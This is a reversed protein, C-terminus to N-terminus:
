MAIFLDSCTRVIPRSEPSAGLHKRLVSAFNEMARESREGPTMKSNGTRNNAARKEESSPKTIHRAFLSRFHENITGVSRRNDEPLRRGILEYFEKESMAGAKALKVIRDVYWSKSHEDLTDRVIQDELDRLVHGLKAALGSPMAEFTAYTGMGMDFNRDLTGGEPNMGLQHLMRYLVMTAMRIDQSPGSTISLVSKSELPNPSLFIREFARSGLIMNLRALLDSATEGLGNPKVYGGAGTGNPVVVVTEFRAGTQVGTFAHGFEHAATLMRDESVRGQVEIRPFKLAIERDELQLPQEEPSNTLQIRYRVRQKAESYDLTLTLPEKAYKSSRPLRALAYELDTSIMANATKTTNRAGESPIVSENFLYRRYAPTTKMEIQGVNRGNEDLLREDEVKAAQTEIIKSYAPKDLPKMILMQTMLRSVTDPLFMSGLLKKIAAPTAKLRRWAKIVDEITTMRPDAEFGFRDIAFNMTVGIFAGRLDIAESSYQSSIDFRGDNLLDKLKALVPRNEFEGKPSIEFVKDLEEFLLIFQGTKNDELANAVAREVDTAFAKVAEASDTAYSQMNVRAVPLGTLEAARLFLESKGIGPFGALARMSPEKRAPGRRGFYNELDTAIVNIADAQGYLYEALGERLGKVRDQNKPFRTEFTEKKTVPKLEDTEEQKKLFAPKVAAVDQPPLFVRSGADYRAEFAIAAGDRLTSSSGQQQVKETVRVFVKNLKPHYRVEIHRPRTSSTLGPGVTKSGYVILQEILTNTLAVTERAGSPAFVAEKLLFEMMSPHVDVTIRKAANKDQVNQRIAREVQLEIIRRYADSGLPQMIVTNAGFRSVTNSRFMRALVKYRASPQNRVWDDFAKFDEITFDYYSKHTGLIEQSFSEIEVPALNMTTLFMVNSVNTSRGFNGHIKGESSITNLTGIAPSSTEVNTQPNKEVLKDLEEIVVVIPVGPKRAQQIMIADRLASELPEPPVAGVYSQADFELIPFGAKKLYEIMASKGIGPLGIMNMMVPEGSRNPYGELYQIMRAQLVSAAAEQGFVVKGIDDSLGYSKALLKEREDTGYRADAIAKRRYGEGKTRVGGKTRAGGVPPKTGEAAFTRSGLNMDPSLDSDLSRSSALASISISFASVFFVLGRLSM